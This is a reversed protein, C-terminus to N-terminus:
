TFPTSSLSAARSRSGSIAARAASDPAGRQRAPAAGARACHGFEAFELQDLPEEVPRRAIGADDDAHAVVGRHQTHRRAVLEHEGDVHHDLAPVEEGPGIGLPEPM